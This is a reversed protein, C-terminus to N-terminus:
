KKAAARVRERQKEKSPRFIDRHQWIMIRQHNLIVRQLRAHLLNRRKYSTRSYPPWRTYYDEKPKSIALKSFLITICEEIAAAMVLKEYVNWAQLWTDFSDIQRKRQGKIIYAVDSSVPNPLPVTSASPVSLTALLDAFDVYEGKAASQATKETINPALSGATPPTDQKTEPATTQLTFEAKTDRSSQNAKVQKKLADHQLQINDMQSSLSRIPALLVHHSTDEHESDDVPNEIPGPCHKGPSGFQHNSKPTKCQPCKGKRLSM